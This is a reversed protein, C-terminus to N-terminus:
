REILSHVSKGDMTRVFLMLESEKFKKPDFTVLQSFYVRQKACSNSITKIIPLVSLTDKGNSIMEVRDIGMCDAIRGVLWASGTVGGMFGLEVYEVEAYLHEDVSNSRAETVELNEKLIGNVVVQYKGAQLTGVTVNELYPVSYNECAGDSRLATVTINLQDDKVKVDFKNRSYCTNPFRGRVLLEVNDNNDFGKPVFLHEVPATVVVPAAQLVASLALLSLSLFSKM